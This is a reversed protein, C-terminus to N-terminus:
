ENGATEIVKATFYGERLKRGLVAAHEKMRNYDDSSVSALEKSLTKLSDILLGCQHEEIYKAM